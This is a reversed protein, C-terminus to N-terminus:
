IKLFGERALSVQKCRDIFEKQADKIYKTQGAWKKLTSAQLGRGYSFSLEWPPNQDKALKNISDLNEISESDSQGGSLFIIGPVEIPVHKKLCDITMKAVINKGARNISDKGSLIMNPKLLIGPLYVNQQNLQKFVEGLTASTVKNCTDIDHNGDMLVEPEVIPVLGAEQSAIAYRALLISNFEICQASPIQDGITIVARWKSFRAGDEYYKKMREFLGDLGETIKEGPFGIFDKTSKDVKIGPIIDKSQLLSSLMEGKLNKQYLTEEYLIVGSIYENVTKTSFLMDRYNRRNNENSEVGISDFRNAITPNSEDAALIGKKPAVLKKAINSLQDKDM